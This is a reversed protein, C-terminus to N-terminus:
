NKFADFISLLSPYVMCKLYRERVIRSLFYNDSLSLAELNSFSIVKLSTIVTSDTFNQFVRVFM